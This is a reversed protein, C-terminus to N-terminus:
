SLDIKSDSCCDDFNDGGVVSGNVKRLIIYNRIQLHLQQSLCMERHPFTSHKNLFTELISDGAQWLKKNAETGTSYVSVAYPSRIM